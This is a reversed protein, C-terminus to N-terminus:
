PEANRRAQDLLGEFLERTGHQDCWHRIYAFDLAEGQVELVDLVDDVDKQRQGHRSWRLKTIVVDEATPLWAPYGGFDWQKRRGFRMQDHADASLHFMEVKFSLVPHEAIHRMTGTVTEFSMQPDFRLVSGLKQRLQAFAADDCQIVFDADKTSRPRGYLNSSYSGVLMYAIGVEDFTRLFATVIDNSNL